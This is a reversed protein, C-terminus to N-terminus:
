FLTGHQQKNTKQQSGELSSLCKKSASADRAKMNDTILHTLSEYRKLDETYVTVVTEVTEVTEVTQLTQLTRWKPFVVM